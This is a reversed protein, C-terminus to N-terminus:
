ARAKKSARGSAHTRTRSRSSPHPANRRTTPTKNSKAAGSQPTKRRPHNASPTVSNARSRIKSSSQKSSGQRNSSKSKSSEAKSSAPKSRSNASAAVLEQSIERTVRTFTGAATGLKQAVSSLFTERKPSKRSTMFERWLNTTDAAAIRQM